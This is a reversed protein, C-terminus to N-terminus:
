APETVGLVASGFAVMADALEPRERLHHIRALDNIIGLAAYVLVRAVEDDLEPRMARLLVVWETVYDHQMQRLDDQLEAPLHIAETILLSFLPTHELVVRSQSHLLVELAEGPSRAVRLAHHLSFLLVEMGRRFAAVLIAAKTPFHNYVSPGAIGTRAGIDDLSVGGYGHEYVLDIAAALLAERRSAPALRGAERAPHNRHNAATGREGGDDFRRVAEAAAHLLSSLRERQLRVGHAGQSSHVSQIAWARLDLDSSSMSPHKDALASVIRAHSDRMRKRLRLQEERPLNRAERQWLASLERYQTNTVATRWLLEDADAADETIEEFRDFADAITASLLSQKDDFHRYLASATIGVAKAIDAMSVNHFGVRAFQEAAAAVIRQRRDKPRRRISQGADIEEDLM